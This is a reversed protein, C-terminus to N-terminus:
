KIIIPETHRARATATGNNAKWFLEEDFSIKGKKILRMIHKYIRHWMKKNIERKWLENRYSGYRGDLMEFYFVPSYPLCNCGELSPDYDIHYSQVPYLVVKCRYKDSKRDEINGFNYTFDVQLIQRNANSIFQSSQIISISNRMHIFIQKNHTLM